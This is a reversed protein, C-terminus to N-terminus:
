VVSAPIVSIVFALTAISLVTSLAVASAATEPDSGYERALMFANVATPMASALVLSSTSLADMQLLRAVGVALLPVGVVRLAVATLVPRTLHLRRSQALQVGLALLVMPVAAGALLEIGRTVGVPLQWGLLRLIAALAMAWTVPLKAFNKLGALLGGGSGMLIPGVTFMVVLSFLFLIMAQDLGAQGLALLAIPLGFNGNNGLIVAGVVGRQTGRASRFTALWAVVAALATVLLLGGGLVLGESLTVKTKMLSDFALPATLGYLNIKGITDPDLRFNRALLMGVAAVIVVPLIVQLLAALM